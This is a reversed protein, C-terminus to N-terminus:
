KPTNTKRTNTSKSVNTATGLTFSVLSTLLIIVSNDITRTVAMITASIVVLVIVTFQVIRVFLLGFSQPKGQTDEGSFAKTGIETFAKSFFYICVCFGITICIIKVINEIEM